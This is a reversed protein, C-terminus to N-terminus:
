MGQKIVNAVSRFFEGDLFCRLFFACDKLYEAYVVDPVLYTSLVTDTNSMLKAYRMFCANGLLYRVSGNEIIPVIPVDGDKTTLICEDKGNVRDFKVSYSDTAYLFTGNKKLTIDIDLHNGVSLRIHSGNNDVFGSAKQGNLVLKGDKYVLTSTRWVSKAIM